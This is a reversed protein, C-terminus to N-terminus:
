IFSRTSRVPGFVRLKRSQNLKNLPIRSALNEIVVDRWVITALVLFTRCGDVVVEFSEVVVLAVVEFVDVVM